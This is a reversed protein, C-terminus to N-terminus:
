KAVTEDKPNERSKGVEGAKPADTPKVGPTVQSAGATKTTADTNRTNKEDSM